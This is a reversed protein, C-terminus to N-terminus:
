GIACSTGYALFLTVLFWFEKKNYGYGLYSVYYGFAFSIIYRLILLSM